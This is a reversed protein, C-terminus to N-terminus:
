TCFSLRGSIKTDTYRYRSFVSTMIVWLSHGRFRYFEDTLQHSLKFFVEGGLVRSSNQNCSVNLERLALRKGVPLPPLDCVADNLTTAFHCTEQYANRGEPDTDRIPTQALATSLFAVFVLTFIGPKRNIM